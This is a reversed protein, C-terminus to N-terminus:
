EGEMRGLVREMAEPNDRRLQELQADSLNDFTARLMDLLIPEFFNAEWKERWREFMARGSMEASQVTRATATM